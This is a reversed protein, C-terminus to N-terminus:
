PSSTKALFSALADPTAGQVVTINNIQSDKAWRGLRESSVWWQGPWSLWFEASHSLLQAGLYESSLWIADCHQASLRMEDLAHPNISRKYVELEVVKSGREILTESYTLRGGSGKVILWHDYMVDHTQALNLVDEATFGTEPHIADVGADSLIQGTRSGNCLWKIGLPPMPWYQDLANVAVEAATPSVCIIGAYSDLNLWVQRSKGTEPILEIEWPDIAIVSESWFALTDLWRQQEKNAKPLLLQM